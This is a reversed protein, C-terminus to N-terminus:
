RRRKKSYVLPLIVLLVLFLEFGPTLSLTP